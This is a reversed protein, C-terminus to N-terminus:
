PTLAAHLLDRLEARDIPHKGALVAAAVTEVDAPRM